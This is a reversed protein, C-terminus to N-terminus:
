WGREPIGDTGLPPPRFEIENMVEEPKDKYHKLMRMVEDNVDIRHKNQNIQSECQRFMDAIVAHFVDEGKGDYQFIDNSDLIKKREAELVAINAMLDTGNKKVLREMDKISLLLNDVNFKAYSQKNQIHNKIADVFLTAIIGKAEMQVPTHGGRGSEDYKARAVDDILTEYAKKIQVFLSEKDKDGNTKDPHYKKALRRYATKIEEPTADPEVGLMDYYKTEAVM